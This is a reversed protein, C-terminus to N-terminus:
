EGRRWARWNTEDDVDSLRGLFGVSAGANARTDALAHETSWRVNGFLKPVRPRGRAGVLWYGGDDAPGFVIEHTGLARFAQAVHRRRVGPIDSGVIVTPAGRNLDLLRQMRAGLDGSGQGVRAIDAPWFWTAAAVDPAVALVTRWRPDRGVRRLLAATATRYFRVAEPAGITRALRTKVRGAVPAKVMVFLTPRARPEAM